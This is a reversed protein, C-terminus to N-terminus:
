EQLGKWNSDGKRCGAVAFSRLFSHMSELEEVMEEHACELAVRMREGVSVGGVVSILTVLVTAPSLHGPQASCLAGRPASPLLSLQFGAQQGRVLSPAQYLTVHPWSVCRKREM